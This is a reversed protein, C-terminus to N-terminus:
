GADALFSELNAGDLDTLPRAGYKAALEPDETLFLFGHEEDRRYFELAKERCEELIQAQARFTRVYQECQERPSISSGIFGAARDEVQVVFKPKSM